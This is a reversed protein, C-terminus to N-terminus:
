TAYKMDNPYLESRDNQVVYEWGTRGDSQIVALTVGDAVFRALQQVKYLVNEPDELEVSINQILLCARPEARAESEGETVVPGTIVVPQRSALVESMAEVAENM